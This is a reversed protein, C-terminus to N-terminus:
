QAGRAAILQKAEDRLGPFIRGFLVGAGIAAVGGAAVTAPAGVAGAAYGAVVAGFPAMGLFMMSYLAMVRGRYADPVMAQVLTNAAAMHIMQFFGVLMLVGISVFFWHSVAFAILMLGFASVSLAIWRSTGALSARSALLLAGLMAGFGSASMLAGYHEPGGGLIHDAFIPMLTIYPMSLLSMAGVLLLVARIPRAEVAFKLGQRVLGFISKQRPIKIFPPRDMALLGLLVALFSLGNILFCWAEGVAAVTVGAVAPGVLRAANFMSSNLAIANPLDDRGVMDVVFAQRSPIDFANVVGLLASLLFVEWIQVVGAFTLASLIFALAMSATQTMLLIRHRNHHDAVAGGFQGFVFVPGQSFFGALGLMEASGGLRYVLWSQAAMQMWTGILSVLQGSFFLRYNRHRFARGIRAFNSPRLSMFKVRFVFAGVTMRDWCPLM